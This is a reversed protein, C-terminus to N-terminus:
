SQTGSIWRAGKSKEPLRPAPFMCCMVISRISIDDLFPSLEFTAREAYIFHGEFRVLELRHFGILRLASTCRAIM